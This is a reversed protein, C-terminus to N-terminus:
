KFRFFKVLSIQKLILIKLLLDLVKRKGVFWNKGKEVDDHYFNPFCFELICFLSLLLLLFFSLFIIWGVISGIRFEHQPNISAFHDNTCIIVFSIVFSSLPIIRRSVVFWVICLDAKEIFVLKARYTDISTAATRAWVVGQCGWPVRSPSLPDIVRRLHHRPLPIM